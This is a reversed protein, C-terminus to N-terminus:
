SCEPVTFIQGQQTNGYIYMGYSLESKGIASLKLLDDYRRVVLCISRDVSNQICLIHLSKNLIRGTAQPVGESDRVSDPFDISQCKEICTSQFAHLYRLSDCFNSSRSKLATFVQCRDLKRSTETRNAAFAKDPASIKRFDSNGSLIIDICNLITNQIRLIHGRQEQIWRFFCFFRETDWIVHCM